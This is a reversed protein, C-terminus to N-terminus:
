KKLVRLVSPSCLVQEPQSSVYLSLRELTRKASSPHIGKEGAPFPRSLGAYYSRSRQTATVNLTLRPLVVCRSM